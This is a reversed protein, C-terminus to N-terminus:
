RRAVDPRRGECSTTCRRMEAHAAGQCAAVDGAAACSGYGAHYDRRCQARCRGAAANPRAAPATDLDIDRSPGGCGGAAAVIALWLSCLLPVRIAPRQM